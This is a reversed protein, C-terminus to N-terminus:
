QSCSCVTTTCTVHLAVDVDLATEDGPASCTAVLPTATFASMTPMATSPPLAAFATTEGSALTVDARLSTPTTSINALAARRSSAPVVKDPEGLWVWGAPLVRSLVLHTFNLKQDDSPAPRAPIHMPQSPTLLPLFATPAKGGNAWVDYALYSATAPLDSSVLAADSTSFDVGAALDVSVLGLQLGGGSPAAWLNLQAGPVDFEARLAADTVSIPADARLLVGDTRCSRMILSRNFSMPSDSPGYPGGSLVALTTEAAVNEVSCGIRGYRDNCNPAQVGSTWVNDRSPGLGAAGILLASLGLVQVNRADNRPSDDGTARMNSVQSMMTSALVHAPSGMCWQLEIGAKRAAENMSSLFALGQTLSSDTLNTKSSYWCLFDQEFMVMEMASFNKFLADWFGVDVPIAMSGDTAWEWPYRERDERYVSSAAWGPNYLVAKTGNFWSTWGDPIVDEPPWAWVTGNDWDSGALTPSWDDFQAYRFPIKLATWTERASLLFDEYNSWNATPIHHYAWAGNDIWYGLKSLVFTDDSSHRSKGSLQLLVDGYGYMANRRGNAAIVVTTHSTGPPLEPVSQKIGARVTFSGATSSPQVEHVAVLPHTLPGVVLASDSAQGHLLLPVFSDSSNGPLTSAGTWNTTASGGGMCSGFVVARLPVAGGANTFTPFGAIAVGKGSLPPLPPDIAGLGVPWAQEFAVLWPKDAYVKVSATVVEKGGMGYHLVTSTFQGLPDTGNGRTPAGHLTLGTKSRQPLDLSPGGGTLWEAGNVYVTFVGDPSVSVSLSPASEVGDETLRELEPRAPSPTGEPQHGRAAVGAGSSSALIMGLCAPLVLACCRNMPM